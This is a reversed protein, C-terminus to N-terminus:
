LPRALPDGALRRLSSSVLHARTALPEPRPGADIAAAIAELLDPALLPGDRSRLPLGAPRRGAGAVLVPVTRGRVTVADLAVGAVALDARRTALPGRVVLVTGELWAGRRVAAAVRYGWGGLLLAALALGVARGATHNLQGVAASAMVSVAVAVPAAVLALALVWAFRWGAGIGPDLEVRRRGTGEV